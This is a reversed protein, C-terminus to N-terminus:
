NENGVEKKVVAFKFATSGGNNAKLIAVYTGARGADSVDWVAHGFTKSIPMSKVLSGDLAHILITGNENGAPLSYRLVIRGNNQMAGTLSFPKKAAVPYKAAGVGPPFSFPASDKQWQIGSVVGAIMAVM